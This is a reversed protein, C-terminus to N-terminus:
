ETRSAVVLSVEMVALEPTNTLVSPPAVQISRLSGPM